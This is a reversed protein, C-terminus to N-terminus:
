RAAARTVPKGAAAKGPKSCMEKLIQGLKGVGIEIEEGDVGGYGLVLGPRSVRGLYCTSLPIVSIGAAAAQRSVLRDDSGPPLLCVLHMGADASVIEIRDDLNGRLAEILTLRREMYLMRMRRIHRAFHGQRIFDTLARQFLVSPFLDIADRAV